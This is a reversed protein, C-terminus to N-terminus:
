GDCRNERRRRVSERRRKGERERKSCLEHEKRGNEINSTALSFNQPTKTGHVM